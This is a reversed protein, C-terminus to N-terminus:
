MYVLVHEHNRHTCMRADNFYMALFIDAYRLTQISDM